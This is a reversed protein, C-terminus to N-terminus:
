KKEEGKIKGDKDLKVEIKKKDANVLHVEYYDFTEKGDTVKIVEEVVEIKAGAYKTNLTKTVAKPLDKAPITKEILTIKGEPTLTVDIKTDGDKITVEYETKGGETEKAAEVLKAKPFRKKVADIVAKPVKDLPVKEEDARVGLVVLAFVVCGALRTMTRMPQEKISEQTWGRDGDPHESPYWVLRIRSHLSSLNPSIKRM